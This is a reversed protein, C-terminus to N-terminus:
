FEEDEPDFILGLQETYPADVVVYNGKIEYNKLVLKVPIPVLYDALNTNPQYDKKLCCLINHGGDSTYCHWNELEQPLRSHYKKNPVLFSELNRQIIKTYDM